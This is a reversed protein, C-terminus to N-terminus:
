TAGWHQCPHGTCLGPMVPNSQNVLAGPAVFEERFWRYREGELADGLWAIAARMSKM